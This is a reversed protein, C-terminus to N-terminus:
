EGLIMKSYEKDAKEIAELRSLNEDVNESVENPDYRRDVMPKTPTQLQSSTSTLQTSQIKLQSPTATGQKNINM